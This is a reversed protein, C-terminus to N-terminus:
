LGGSIAMYQVTDADDDSPELANTDYTFGTYSSGNDTIDTVIAGENPVKAVVFVKPEPNSMSFASSFTVSGTTSEGYCIHLKNGWKISYNTGSTAVSIDWNALLTNYISQISALYGSTLNASSQASSVNALISTIISSTYDQAQLLTLGDSPLIGAGINRLVKAQGDMYDNVSDYVVSKNIMDNLEQVPMFVNDFALDAVGENQVTGDSYDVRPTAIDTERGIVVIDGAAPTSTLEVMYDSTWTFTTDEVGDVYVHVDTKNIYNFTVPFSKTLGSATVQSYSLGM